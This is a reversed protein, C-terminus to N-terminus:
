RNCECINIIKNKISKNDIRQDIPCNLNIDIIINKDNNINIIKNNM